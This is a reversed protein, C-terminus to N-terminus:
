YLRSMAWDLVQDPLIRALAINLWTGRGIIYRPKPRRATLTHAVLRGAAAAPLGRGDARQVRKQGHEMM